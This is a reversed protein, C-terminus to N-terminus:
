PTDKVYRFVQVRHNYQDVVYIMDKTDIHLGSPLWFQGPDKGIGGVFLLLEGTNSFIQFNNFAADVVYVHGESDVAVGKPRSFQGMQAGIEGFGSRYTGELDFIQIRFNMTDTVYLTNKYLFLHTPFNFEGQGIGRKGFAFLFSGSVSDYVRIVHRGADSVYIRNSAMDLALGAPSYFEDSKGIALVITGTETFGFVRKLKTDAVFIIGRADDVAISSPMALKIQGSNGIINVRKNTSDFIWIASLATDTVYVRRKRDTTVAYPKVLHQLEKAEPGILIEKFRSLGEKAFHDRRELTEVYFIRPKEPPMPWQFQTSVPQTPACGELAILGVLGIM